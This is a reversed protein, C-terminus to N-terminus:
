VSIISFTFTQLQNLFINKCKFAVTWIFCVIRFSGFYILWLDTVKSIVVDVDIQHMNLILFFFSLMFVGLRDCSVVSTSSWLIRLM